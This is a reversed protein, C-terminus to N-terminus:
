FQEFVFIRAHIDFFLLKKVMSKSIEFQCNLLKNKSSNKRLYNIHLLIM